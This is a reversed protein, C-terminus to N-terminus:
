IKYKKYEQVVQQLPYIDVEKYKSNDLKVYEKVNDYNLGQKNRFDDTFNKKLYRHLYFMCQLFSNVKQICTCTYQGPSLPFNYVFCVNQWCM